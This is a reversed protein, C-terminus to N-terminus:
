PKITRYSTKLIVALFLKRFLLNISLDGASWHNIIIRNPDDEKSIIFTSGGNAQTFTYGTGENIYINELRFRGSNAPTNDISIFGQGDSDTVIDIGYTGTFQYVDMGTVVDVITTPTYQLKVKLAAFTKLKSLQSQKLAPIFGFSQPSSKSQTILPDQAVIPKADIPLCNLQYRTSLKDSFPTCHLPYQTAM